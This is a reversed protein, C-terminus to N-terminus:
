HVVVSVGVDAGSSEPSVVRDPSGPFMTEAVDTRSLRRGSATVKGGDDVGDPGPSYIVFGRATRGYHFSQGTYPDVPLAQTTNSAIDDLVAPLTRHSLRYGEVAIALQIARLHTVAAAHRDAVRQCLTITRETTLVGGVVPLWGFADSGRLARIQALRSPWRQQAAAYCAASAQLSAAAARRWLPRLPMAWGRRRGARDGWLDSGFRQFSLAEGGIVAALEDDRDLERLAAAVDLLTPLPIDRGLLVSVDAVLTEVTLPKLLGQASDRDRDYIRLLRARDIVMSAAGRTDGASLRLLMKLSAVNDLGRFSMSQGLWVLTPSLPVFPLRSASALLDFAAANRDMLATAASAAAPSLEVGRAVSETVAELVPYMDPPAQVLMYAALYYRGADDPVATAGPPAPETAFAAQAARWRREESRDWVQWLLILLLTPFCWLAVRKLWPRVM